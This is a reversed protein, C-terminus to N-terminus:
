FSLNSNKLAVRIKQYAIGIQNEVTKISIGLEDAIQQYKLGRMKSLLFIEKCKPPLQEIIQQLIKIKQSEHQQEEETYLSNLASLRITDLIEYRKKERRYNDVFRNYVAQFLYSKLSTNIVISERKQWLKLLTDQVIDEAEERNSTFNLIYVCLIEYFTSYIFKFAKQCGKKLATLLKIDDNLSFDM